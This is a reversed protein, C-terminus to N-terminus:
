TTAYAMWRGTAIAAIWIVLSLAAMTKVGVSASDMEVGRGYVKRKLLLIFAVGVAIVGLKWLFIPILGKTPDAVLLLVGSIANLWFGAWMIPFARSLIGIPVARAVGLIRLDVMWNAGVLVGLGLTHLTLVTPYAWVSPSERLWTSFASAELSALLDTM